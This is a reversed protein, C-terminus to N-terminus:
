ESVAKHEFLAAIKADDYGLHGRLVERTHMGIRWPATAQPVVPAGDLQFPQATVRVAQTRAPHSITPFAGRQHLHPHEVIEEPNMMPMAPVRAEALAKAATQADPFKTLWEALMQAIEPWRERRAAGTLYRPDNALAPRGMANALRPWMQPTGGIQLAVHREGIKQVVMGVRPRREIPVGNLLAAYDIDDACVCRM